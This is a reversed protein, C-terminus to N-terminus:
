LLKALEVLQKEGSPTLLERLIYIRNHENCAKEADEKNGFLGITKYDRLDFFSFSHCFAAWYNREIDVRKEVFYKNSGIAVGEENFRLPKIVIDLNM